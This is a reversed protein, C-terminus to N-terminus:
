KPAQPSTAIVEDKRDLVTICPPSPSLAVALGRHPLDDPPHLWFEVRFGGKAHNFALEVGRRERTAEGWDVLEHLFIGPLGGSLSRGWGLELKYFGDGPRSDKDPPELILRQAYVDRARLDQGNLGVVHSEVLALHRRQRTVLAIAFIALMLALFAQYM